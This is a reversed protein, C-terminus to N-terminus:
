TDENEGSDDVTEDVSGDVSDDGSEEEDDSSDGSSSASSSGSSGGSSGDNTNESNNEANDESEPDESASGEKDATENVSNSRNEGDEQSSEKGARSGDSSETSTETETKLVDIRTLRAEGRPSLRVPTLLQNYPFIPNGPNTELPIFSSDPLLIVLDGNPLSTVQSVLDRSRSDWISATGDANVAFVLDGKAFVKLPLNNNSELSNLRRNRYINVGDPGASTVLSNNDDNYFLSADSDEGTFRMISRGSSLRGQSFERIHTYSNGQSSAIGLSYFTRSNSPRVFQFVVTDDSNVLSTEGTQPNVEILSSNFFGAQNKAILLRGNSLELVDMLGLTQYQFQKQYSNKELLQIGDENDMLIIYREGVRIERIPSRMDVDIRRVERTFSNYELISSTDERGWILIKVNDLPTMGAPNVIPLNLRTILEDVDEFRGHNGSERAELLLGSPIRSIGDASQIYTWNGQYVIRQIGSLGTVGLYSIGGNTVVGLQGNEAAFVSISRSTSFYDASGSITVSEQSRELRISNGFAVNLSNLRKRRGLEQLLFYANENRSDPIIGLVDGSDLSDVTRGNVVDILYLSGNKYGLAHRQNPLLTFHRLDRQTQTEHNKEGSRLDLYRISGSNGSYTMIRTESGSVEAHQVIGFGDPLYNLERARQTDYFRLSRWQPLALTLFSGRPSYRLFVPLDELTRAFSLRKDEWNWVSLRYEGRSGEEVIALENNEPHPAIMIIPDQGVQIHQILRRTENNWVKLVGSASGSFSLLADDRVATASVPASHGQNIHPFSGPVSEIGFASAALLLTLATLLLKKM